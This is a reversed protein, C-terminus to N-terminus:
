RSEQLTVTMDTEEGERVTANVFEDDYGLANVKVRYKGEPLNRTTSVGDERLIEEFGMTMLDKLDPFFGLFFNGQDDMIEAQAGPVANGRDDVTRVILTGGATLLFDARNDAGSRITVKQSASAYGKADVSMTYDGAALGTTEYDGTESLTLRKSYVLRGSSDKASLFAQKVPRSPDSGTVQGYLTAGASLSFDLDSPGRSNQVEATLAQPAYGEKSAVVFYAGDEVISFSYNGESDTSESGGMFMGLKSMAAIQINKAQKQELTLKAGEIPKRTEADVVQGSIGGEPLEINREVDGDTLDIQTEFLPRPMMAVVKMVGLSYQGPQVDEIEYRGDEDTKDSALRQSKTFSISKLSTQISVILGPQPEGNMTVKGYVKRPGGVVIDLRTEKDNEIQVFHMNSRSAGMGMMDGSIEIAGATYTGEKLNAIAYNGQEDTQSMKQGGPGVAVIMMNVKPKGSLDRVTGVLSGGQSLEIILDTIADNEALTLDEITKPAFDPASVTLSYTGPELKIIDFLGDYDTKSEAAGVDPILFTAATSAKVTADAIPQLDVKALVVGSIMGGQVLQFEVGETIEGKNVSVNQEEPCYDAHRAQLTFAGGPLGDIEFEGKADSTALIRRQPLRLEGLLTSHLPNKQVIEGAEIPKGSADIVHGRIGGAPQQKIVVGSTTKEPEVEIGGKYSQAYGEALSTLRYKGKSLGSVRFMGEPNEFEKGATPLYIDVERKKFLVLSLGSRPDDSTVLRFEEVPELTVADLVNGEIAGGLTLTIVMNKQPAAMNKQVAIYDEKKTSLFYRKGEQYRFGFRGDEKTEYKLPKTLDEFVQPNEISFDNWSYFVVQVTAGQLPAGGKDVVIGSIDFEEVEPPSEVVEAKEEPAPPTPVPEAPPAERSPKVVAPAGEGPAPKGEKDERLQSIIFCALIVLVCVAIVGIILRNSSDRM